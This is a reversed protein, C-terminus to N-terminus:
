RYLKYVFPPFAERQQHWHSRISTPLGVVIPTLLSTVKPNNLKYGGTVVLVRFLCGRISDSLYRIADNVAWLVDWPFCISGLTVDNNVRLPSTLIYPTVIAVTRPLKCIDWVESNGVKVESQNMTAVLWSWSGLCVGELAILYTDLPM